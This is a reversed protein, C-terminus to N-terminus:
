LLTAKSVQVMEAAPSRNGELPGLCSKCPLRGRSLSRCAAFRNGWSPSPAFSPNRSLPVPKSTSPQVTVFLPWIWGLQM